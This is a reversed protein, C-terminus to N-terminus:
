NKKLVSQEAILVELAERNSLGAEMDLVERVAEMINAQQELGKNDAIRAIALVANFFGIDHIPHTTITEPMDRLRVATRRDLRVRRKAEPKVRQSYFHQGVAEFFGVQLKQLVARQPFTTKGLPWEGKEILELNPTFWGHIHPYKEDLHLVCAHLLMDRENLWQEFWAQSRERFDYIADKSAEQTTQPLSAVLTGLAVSNKRMPRGNPYRESGGFRCQDMAENIWRGLQRPHEVPSQPNTFIEIQPPQTLHSIHTEERLGEALVSGMTNAASRQGRPYGYMRLFQYGPM